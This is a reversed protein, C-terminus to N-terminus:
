NSLKPSVWVLDAWDGTSNTSALFEIDSVKSVDLSIEKMGEGKKVEENFVERDNIRVIFVASQDYNPTKNSFGVHLSLRKWRGSLNYKIQAQNKCGKCRYYISNPRLRNDVEISENFYLDSSPLYKTADLDTLNRDQHLPMPEIDASAPGSPNDVETTTTTVTDSSSVINTSKGGADVTEGNPEGIDLMYLIPKSFLFIIAVLISLATYGIRFFKKKRYTMNQELQDVLLGFALVVLGSVIGGTINFIDNVM